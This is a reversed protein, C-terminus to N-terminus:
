DKESPIGVPWSSRIMRFQARRRKNGPNELIEKLHRNMVIQLERIM